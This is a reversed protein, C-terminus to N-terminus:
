FICLIYVRINRYVLFVVKSLSFVCENKDNLIILKQPHFWWGDVYTNKKPMLLNDTQTSLIRRSMKLSHLRFVRFFVSGSIPDMCSELCIRNPLWHETTHNSPFETLMHVFKTLNSYINNAIPLKPNETQIEDIWGATVTIIYSIYMCLWLCICMTALNFVKTLRWVCKKFICVLLLQYLSSLLRFSREVIRNAPFWSFVYRIYVMLMLCYSVFTYVIHLMFIYNM